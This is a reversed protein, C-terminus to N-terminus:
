HSAKKEEPKKELLQINSLDLAIAKELKLIVAKERQINDFLWNGIHLVKKEAAYEKAIRESHMEVLFIEINTFLARIFKKCGTYNKCGVVEPTDPMLRVSPDIVSLRKLIEEETVYREQQKSSCAVLYTIIFVIIIQIKMNRPYFFLSGGAYAGLKDAEMGM